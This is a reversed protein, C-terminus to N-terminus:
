TQIKQALIDAYSRARAHADPYSKAFFYANNVFATQEARTLQFYKVISDAIQEPCLPDFYNAHQQCCDCIFPLRSAFLPKKMIMAELPVASFCELMSPFVVGDLQNYFYPCQALTLPGVNCISSHFSSNCENWEVDSFTVFFAVTLSYKELLIRKVEPLCRLNKHPYNKAVVGLSMQNEKIPMIVPQWREPDAYIEDVASSVIHIPMNNFLRQQRLGKKVHELEVILEDARTFFVAQLFYKLRLRIRKLVPLTKEFVNHPYVIFPQALGFIHVTRKHLFYAPGFVTFVLNYDVFYNDLGKWLSELGVYDQIVYKEFQTAAIGLTQLNSHVLSSVLVSINKGLDQHCLSALFSSAVAVGGGHHLNSCNILIKPTPKM